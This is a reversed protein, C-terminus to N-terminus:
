GIGHALLRLGQFDNLNHLFAFLNGPLAHIFKWGMDDERVPYMYLPTNVTGRTVPNGSGPFSRPLHDIAIPVIHFPTHITM